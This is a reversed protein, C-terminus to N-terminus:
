KSWTLKLKLKITDDADIFLFKKVVIGFNSRKMKWEANLTLLNDAENFNIEIPLEQIKKIGRIEWEVQATKSELNIPSLLRLKIKKFVIANKGEAPLRDDDNCVHESPFDSKEYDLGMSEEFHCKLKEDKVQVQTIDVAYNAQTVRRSAEDWVLEGDLQTSKFAHSGFTYPVIFELSQEKLTLAFSSFSFIFIAFTLFFQM